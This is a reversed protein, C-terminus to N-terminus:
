LNLSKIKNKNNIKLTNVKGLVFSYKILLVISKTPKETEWYEKQNPKRQNKPQGWTETISKDNTVNKNKGNNALELPYTKKLKERESTTGELIAVEPETYKREKRKLVRISPVKVRQRRLCVWKNASLTLDEGETTFALQLRRSDRILEKM